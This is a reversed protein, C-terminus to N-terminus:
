CFRNRLIALLWSAAATNPILGLEAIRHTARLRCMPDADILGIPPL